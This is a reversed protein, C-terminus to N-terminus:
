KSDRAIEISNGTFINSPEPIPIVIPKGAVITADKLDNEVMVIEIWQESSMQGRYKEALSWLTDGHEIQIQEYALNDPTKWTYITFLLVFVGFLLVIYNNKKLWTM